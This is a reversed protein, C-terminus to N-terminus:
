APPRKARLRRVLAIVGACGMLPLWIRAFELCVRRSIWYFVVPPSVHSVDIPPIEVLHFPFLFRTVSWPWLLAVGQGGITLADLVPHSAAAIFLFFFARRFSVRLRRHLCAGLLAVALAVTLSHTAGRHFFQTGSAVGFKLSLVDLDPLVSVLVGALLLRPPIRKRGLGLGLALPVAVHGFSTPM